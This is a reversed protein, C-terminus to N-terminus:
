YITVASGIPVHEYLWTIDENLLRICGHTAATGISKRDPTGHLDVGNALRLRYPGLTGAIRRNATGFPPIFLVGDVIIEEDSPFVRFVSDRGVIGVAGARVTLLSGDELTVPEGGNMRGLELGLKRAVEIYHWDPPVWLPAEEKARVVTEGTPTRFRWTKGGDHLTRGSGVAIAATFLTDGTPSQVWLRRQEVAITIRPLTDEAQAFGTSWPLLLLVLTRLMLTDECAAEVRLM